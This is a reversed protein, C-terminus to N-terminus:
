EAVIGWRKMRVYLNQRSIGSLRAAESMNGGAVALLRSLYDREFVERAKAYPLVIDAEPGPATGSADPTAAIAHLFDDSGLPGADRFAVAREIAHQLQRVNGPWPQRELLAVAEATLPGVEKGFKANYHVLFHAALLPIDERHERLPPTHLSVVNIRYFLDERFRGARVEEPLSRNTACILRFDSRRPETSGLRTLTREQLVRLLSSQLKTSMDSIEDLFLTGGDAEEFFGAAARLAGTFAGKEYGFLASELLTEALAGCNVPVFRARARRSAAHILRAVLEKGTGSEGEILVTTDLPAVLRIRELLERVAESRGIIAPASGALALSHRLDEIERYARDLELAHDIVTELEDLNEFPKTLYDFLGERMARKADHVDAYGTILLAVQRPRSARMDRLLDLGNTDPLRQDMIILNFDRQAFLRRAEEATTAFSVAATKAELLGELLRRTFPDDDVVLIREATM